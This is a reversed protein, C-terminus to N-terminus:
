DENFELIVQNFIVGSGTQTLSGSLDNWRRANNDSTALIHCSGEVDGANNPEGSNFYAQPTSNPSTTWDINWDEGTIWTFKNSNGPYAVKNYGIWISNNLNYGTGNALINKNIFEREADSNMTVIYGGVQKAFAFTKYFNKGGGLQYACYTHDNAGLGSWKKCGTEAVSVGDFTNPVSRQSYKSPMYGLISNSFGNTKVNNANGATLLTVVWTTGSTLGTNKVIAFYGAPIIFSPQNVATTSVDIKESGNPVVTIDFNSGNRIEYIRGGFTAPAPLAAPLSWKSANAGRFDLYHDTKLLTYSAASIAKYSTAFSGNVDLTSGPSSTNIGVQSLLINDHSFLMLTLIVIKKM